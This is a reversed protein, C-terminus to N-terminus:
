SRSGGEVCNSRHWAFSLFIETQIWSFKRNNKYGLGINKLVPLMIVLLFHLRGQLIMGVVRSDGSFNVFHWSTSLRMFLLLLDFFNVKLFILQQCPPWLQCTPRNVLRALTALSGLNVIIDLNGFQWGTELKGVERKRLDGLEEVHGGPLLEKKVGDM